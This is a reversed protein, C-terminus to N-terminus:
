IISTNLNLHTYRNYLKDTCPEMLNPHKFVLSGFGSILDISIQANQSEDM